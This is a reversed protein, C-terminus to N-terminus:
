KRDRRLRRLADRWEQESLREEIPLAKASYDSGQTEKSRLDRTAKEDKLVSERWVGVDHYTDPLSDPWVIQRDRMESLIREALGQEALQLAAAVATVYCHDLWMDSMYGSGVIAESALWLARESQGNQLALDALVWYGFLRRQYWPKTAVWSEAYAVAEVPSIDRLLQLICQQIETLLSPSRIRGQLIKALRLAEKKDGEFAEYHMLLILPKLQDERLLPVLSVWEGLNRRLHNLVDPAQMECLDATTSLSEPVVPKIQRVRSWPLFIRVEGKGEAITMMLEQREEVVQIKVDRWIKGHTDEVTAEIAVLPPEPLGITAALCWATVVWKGSGKVKLM